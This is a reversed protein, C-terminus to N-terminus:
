GPRDHVRSHRREGKEKRKSDDEPSPRPNPLRVRRIILDRSTVRRLEAKTSNRCERKM